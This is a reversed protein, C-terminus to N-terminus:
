LKVMYDIRVIALFRSQSPCNWIDLWFFIQRALFFIQRTSDASGRQSWDSTLSIGGTLFVISLLASLFKGPESAPCRRRQHIQGLWNIKGEGPLGEAGILTLHQCTNGIFCVSKAM